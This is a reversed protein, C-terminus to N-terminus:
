SKKKGSVLVSFEGKINERESLQELVENVSGEIFEEHIKTMERGVLIDREPFLDAIDTLLKIIRFPSEYFLAAEPRELLEKLRKRRRGPKPSLFGEFTVAKDPFAGISVLSAFASAGPVPIVPFGADRVIRVLRSGPDSIGPTGADSAYAVSLGDELMEVIRGAAKEENVSRCSVLKKSISYSNLLRLTHRTDECAIVDVTKLVDLARLTIDKLNGIPTAVIYLSATENGM